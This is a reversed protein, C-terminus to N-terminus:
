HVWESFWLWAKWKQVKSGRWNFVLFVTYLFFRPHTPSSDSFEFGRLSPYTNGTQQSAELPKKTLLFSYAGGPAREDRKQPESPAGTLPSACGSRKRNSSPTHKGTSRLQEDHLGVLCFLGARAENKWNGTHNLHSPVHHIWPCM